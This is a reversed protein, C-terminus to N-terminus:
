SFYRYNNGSAGAAYEAQTADYNTSWGLFNFGELTPITSSLNISTGYDKTQESPANTGGNADYSICYQNIRWVAYLSIAANNSYTSGAMYAATTANASTAWGVFTYGTRTPVSTSLKLDVGYTKTQNSPAGTGGNANYTVSFTQAQFMSEYFSNSCWAIRWIGSSSTPYLIQSYGNQQSLLYVKEGPDVWYNNNITGGARDSFGTVKSIATRYSEHLTGPVFTDHLPVYGTYRDSGVPFQIRAYAVGNGNIGVGIIYDEDNEGTWTTSSAMGEYGRTSLDSSTYVNYHNTTITYSKAYNSANLSTLGPSLVENTSPPNLDSTAVWGLAYKGTKTLPMFIQTSTGSTGIKYCEDGTYVRYIHTSRSATTYLNIYKQATFTSFSASPSVVFNSIPVYGTITGSGVPFTVSCYGNTYFDNITCNDTTYIEGARSSLDSKKAIVNSGTILHAECGKFKSYKSDSTFVIPNSYKPWFTNQAYNMRSSYTSSACREFYQAFYKAANSAGDATNSVSKLYSYTAPGKYDGGELEWKLFALQSSMTKWSNPYHNKLSTLRSNEWQILGWANENPNNATPSFGSEVKVNGMIGCVAATNLGLTNKCYNYVTEEDSAAFATPIVFAVMSVILLTVLLVSLLKKM